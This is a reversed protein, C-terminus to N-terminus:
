ETVEPLLKLEAFIESLVNEPYLNVSGFRPDHVKNIGIELDKCLRTAKRGVRSSQDLTLRVGLLNGYGMASYYRGHPYAYREQEAEIGEIRKNQEAQAAELEILRKENEVNQQALMMILESQLVPAIAKSKEKAIRECEIFYKRIQKGQDTGAMMGIAKFCDISLKYEKSPRGPSNEERNLFVIYDVNEEFNDLLRAANDKRSYGLWEWALNFDVPFQDGSEVLQQALEISFQM